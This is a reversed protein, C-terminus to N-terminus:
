AEDEDDTELLPLIAQWNAEEAASESADDVAVDPEPDSDLLLSLDEEQEPLLELPNLVRVEFLSIAEEWPWDRAELDTLVDRVAEAFYAMMRATRVLLLPEPHRDQSMFTYNMTLLGQTSYVFVGLPLIQNVTVLFQTLPVIQERPLSSVGPFHFKTQTAQYPEAEPLDHGQAILLDRVFAIQLNLAPLEPQSRMDTLLGDFPKGEALQVEAKADLVQSTYGLFDFAKFLTPWLVKNKAPTIPKM